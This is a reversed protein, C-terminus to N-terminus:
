SARTKRSNLLELGSCISFVGIGVRRGKRLRQLKSSRRQHAELWEDIEHVFALSREKCFALFQRAAAQSLNSNEAKRWFIDAGRSQAKRKLINGLTDSADSLFYAMPEFALSKDSCTLFFPSILKYKGDRTRRVNEFRTLVSLAVEPDIHPCAKRVLATFSSRGRLPLIRSNGCSDIFKRDRIWASVIDAYPTPDGIHRLQRAGKKNLLREFARSFCQAADKKAWGGAYLFAAIPFLLAEARLRDIHTRKSLKSTTM